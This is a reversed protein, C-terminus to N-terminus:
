CRRGAGEKIKGVCFLLLLGRGNGKCGSEAEGVGGRVIFHSLRMHRTEAIGRRIPVLNMPMKVIDLLDLDCIM